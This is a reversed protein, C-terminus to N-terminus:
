FIGPFDLGLPWRVPQQPILFFASNDYIGSIGHVTQATINGILLSYLPDALYPAYFGVFSVKRKDARVEAM